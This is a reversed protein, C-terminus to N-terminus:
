IKKLLEANSIEKFSTTDNLFFRSESVHASIISDPTIYSNVVVLPDTIDGKFVIDKECSVFLFIGLLITAYKKISKM